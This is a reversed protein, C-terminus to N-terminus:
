LKELINQPFVLLSRAFVPMDRFVRAEHPATFVVLSRRTLPPGPVVCNLSTQFGPDLHLVQTNRYDTDM